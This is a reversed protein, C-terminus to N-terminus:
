MVVCMVLNTKYSNTTAKKKKKKTLNRNRIEKKLIKVLRTEM